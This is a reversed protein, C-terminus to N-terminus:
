DEGPGGEDLGAESPADPERPVAAKGNSFRGGRKRSVRKEKLRRLQKELRDAALDIASWPETSEERSVMELRKLKLTIEASHRYGEATVILHAEQIDRAFREFKELRQRALLRLEPDLECHRATTSIQM